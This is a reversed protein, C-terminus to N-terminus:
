LRSEQVLVVVVVDVGVDVVIDADKGDRGPIRVRVVDGDAVVVDDDIDLIKKLKGQVFPFPFLFGFLNSDFYGAYGLTNGRPPGWASASTINQPLVLLSHQQFTKSPNTEPRGRWCSVPSSFGALSL